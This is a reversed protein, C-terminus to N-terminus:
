KIILVRFHKSYNFDSFENRNPAHGTDFSEAYNNDFITHYYYGNFSQKRWGFNCHWYYENVNDHRRCGDIVWAHGSYDSQLAGIFVPRGNKLSGLIANQTKDDFGVIKDVDYGLSEFYKKVKAPLAFTGGSGNFNYKVGIGDAIKLIMTSIDNRIRNYSEDSSVYDYRRDYPEVTFEEIEKWSTDTIGFATGLDSRKMYALMQAAAITTCGAPRQKGARDKDSEPAFHFKSNYPTNQHWCTKLLPKVEVAGAGIMCDYIQKQDLQITRRQTYDRVLAGVIYPDNEGGYMDGLYYEDYEACYLDDADIEIPHPRGYSGDSGASTFVLPDINGRDGVVLVTDLRSDAGLVAFGEDNAFNVVRIMSGADDDEGGRTQAGFMDFSTISSVNGIIRHSGRTTAGASEYFRDLASLAEDLPIETATKRGADPRGVDDSMEYNGCSVLAMGLACFAASRFKVM